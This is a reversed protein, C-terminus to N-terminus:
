QPSRWAPALDAPSLTHQPPRATPLPVPKGAGANVSAGDHAGVHENFYEYLMKAGAQARHGIAVAAQSGVTCADPQRGCFSGMDTVTAKAALMADLASVTLKPTPQSGGSPLLALIVTLWFAMRLLFRM